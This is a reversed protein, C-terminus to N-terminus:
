IKKRNELDKIMRNVADISVSLLDQAEDMDYRAEPHQTPNRFNYRINDLGDLLPKPPMDRRKRLHQVIDNWMLYKVRSHKVISCYYYRLVGETGRMLHFAASTPLSFAACRCAQQFDFQCIVPLKNFISSGFLNQPNKLLYDLDYRKPTIIFASRLKLESDLTTDIKDIEAKVKKALASDVNADKPLNEIEQRINRLGTAGTKTVQLNLDDLTKFFADLNSILTDKEGHVKRGEIRFHLIFYNYGFAYYKFIETEQM